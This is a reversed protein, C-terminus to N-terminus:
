NNEDTFEKDYEEVTQEADQDTFDIEEVPVIIEDEVQDDGSVFTLEDRAAAGEDEILKGPDVDEKENLEDFPLTWEEELTIEENGPATLEDALVDYEEASKDAIEFCIECSASCTWISRELAFVPICMLWFFAATVFVRM